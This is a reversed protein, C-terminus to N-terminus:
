SSMAIDLFAVPPWGPYLLSILDGMNAIRLKWYYELLDPTPAVEAEKGHDKLTSFPSLAPIALPFLLISAVIVFVIKRM